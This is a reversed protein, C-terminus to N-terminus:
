DICLLHNTDRTQLEQGVHKSFSPRSSDWLAPADRDQIHHRHRNLCVACVAFGLSSAGQFFDLELRKRPSIQLAMQQQM